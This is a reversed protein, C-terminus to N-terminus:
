LLTPLSGTVISWISTSWASFTSATKLLSETKGQVGSNFGTGIATVTANTNYFLQTATFPLNMIGAFGGCNSSSPAVVSGNAYIYSLVLNASTNTGDGGVAGFISGSSSAQGNPTLVNGLTYFNSVTLYGNSNLDVESAFNSMSAGPTPSTNTVNGSTFGDTVTVHSSTISLVGFFGGGDHGNTWGPSAGAGATTYNGSNSVYSFNGFSNGTFTLTGWVGGSWAGDTVVNGSFKVHSVNMTSGASIIGYSSLQGYTNGPTGLTSVTVNGSSTVQSVTFVAGNAVLAQGTISGLADDGTVAVNLTLNTLTSGGNVGTDTLYGILGGMTSVTFAPATVSSPGVAGQLTCNNVTVGSAYGILLGVKQLGKMTFNSITLNKITAGSASIFLGTSVTAASNDYILNSFTHGNGDFTGQFPAANSGVPVFASSTSFDLDAGVVFYSTLYAPTVGINNFQAVSCIAFPNASTGQGWAFPSNSTSGPVSACSSNVPPTGQGSVAAQVSFQAAGNTFNVTLTGTVAGITSPVLNIQATLASGTAMPTFTFPALVFQSSSLTMSTITIPLQGNNQLAIKIANSGGVATAPFGLTLATSELDTSYLANTSTISLPSVTAQTMIKGCSSLIFLILFFLSVLPVKKLSNM